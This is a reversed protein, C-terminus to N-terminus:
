LLSTIELCKGEHAELNKDLDLLGPEESENLLPLEDPSTYTNTCM